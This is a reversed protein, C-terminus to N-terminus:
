PFIGNELVPQTRTVTASPMKSTGIWRSDFVLGEDAQREMIQIKKTKLLRLVKMGLYGILILGGFGIVGLYWVVKKKKNKLPAVISFYGDSWGYCVNSFKLESLEFTGNNYVAVCKAKSLSMGDPFRLDSFKILIPKWKTRVSIRTMSKTDATVNSVDFVMFGVFYTILSYGPVNYYLSSWNGLQQYVIALRRVYPVSFTTSPFHLNNFKAGIKWLRRSRLRLISVEMGSLNAPLIARYISGTHPRHHHWVLAKFAFNEVQEDLIGAVNNNLSYVFSWSCFAVVVWIFNYTM